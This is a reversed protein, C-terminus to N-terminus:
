PLSGSVVTSLRPKDILISQVGQKKVVEIKIKRRRRKRTGSERDNFLAMPWEKIWM